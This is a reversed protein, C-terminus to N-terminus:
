SPVLSAQTTRKPKHEHGEDHEHAHAEAEEDDAPESEAQPEPTKGDLLARLVGEVEPREIVGAYRRVVKGDGDLIVTGPLSPPLGLSTMQDTTAGLLLPITIDHRKAFRRVGNAKEVEDASAGVVRVGQPGFDTHLRELDPMEEVCPKCWTAWFNLVTISGHLSDLAVSEGDLNVWALDEAAVVPSALIAVALFLVTRITAMM